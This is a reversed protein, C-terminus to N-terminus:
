IEMQGNKSKNGTSKTHYEFFIKVWILIRFYKGNEELLKMTELRANLYKIWKSHSEYITNTNSKKYFSICHKYKAFILRDNIKVKNIPCTKPKIYDYRLRQKNAETEYGEKFPQEM